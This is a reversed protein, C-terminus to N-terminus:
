HKIFYKLQLGYRLNRSTSLNNYFGWAGKQKFGSNIDRSIFFGVEVIDKDKLNIQYAMSISPTFVVRTYWERKFWYIEEYLLDEFNDKKSILVNTNLEASFVFSSNTKIPAVYNFCVPLFLYKLNIKLTTDVYKQFIVYNYELQIQHELPLYGLGTEFTFKSSIHKRYRLSPSAYFTSKISYAAGSYGYPVLVENSIRKLVNNGMEIELGISPQGPLILAFTSFGLILISRVM